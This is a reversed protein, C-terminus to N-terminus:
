NFITNCCLLIFVAVILCFTPSTVAQAKSPNNECITGPPDPNPLGTINYIWELSNQVSMYTYPHDEESCQPWIPTSGSFIGIVAWKGDEPRIYNVPSGVGPSKGNSGSTWIKCSPDDIGPCYNDLPVDTGNCKRSNVVTDDFKQLPGPLVTGETVNGWGTVTVSKGLRDPDCLQPLSTPKIYASLSVPQPLKVLAPLFDIDPTYYFETSNYVQRWPEMTADMQEDYLGLTLEAHSVGEDNCITNFCSAATLVWQDSILAGECVLGMGCYYRAIVQVMWPFEYPQTDVGGALRNSPGDTYSISSEIQTAALLSAFPGILVFFVLQLFNM